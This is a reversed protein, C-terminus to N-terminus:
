AGGGRAPGARHWAHEASILSFGLRALGAQAAYNHDFFLAVPLLMGMIFLTAGQVPKRGLKLLSNYEYLSLMIVTFIFCAYTLGGVHIFWIVLPIGAIATLFRPLPM